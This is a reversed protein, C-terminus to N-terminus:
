KVVLDILKVALAELEVEFIGTIDATLTLTAPAGPTVDVKKDDGHLHVEDTVDSTVELSV